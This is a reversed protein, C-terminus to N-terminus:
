DSASLTKNCFSLDEFLAGDALFQAKLSLQVRYGQGCGKLLVIKHPSQNVM